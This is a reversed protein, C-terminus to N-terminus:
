FPGGAGRHYQKNKPCVGANKQTFNDPRRNYQKSAENTQTMDPIISHVKGTRFQNISKKERAGNSIGEPSIRRSVRDLFLHQIEVVFILLFTSVMSM